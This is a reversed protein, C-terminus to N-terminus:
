RAWDEWLLDVVRSFDDSGSTILTIGRRVAQGAIMTDYAGISTGDRELSARVTGAARADADDFPLIEVAGALFTRVREANYAPRASREAGYWLEELVVSSVCLVSGADLARAVRRRLTASAGNILAVCANTDLTYHTV